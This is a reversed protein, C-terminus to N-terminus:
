EVWLPRGIAVWEGRREGRDVAVLALARARLEAPIEVRWIVWDGYTQPLNVGFVAHATALDVLHVSQGFSCAGVLIPVGVVRVAESLPGVQVRGPLAELTAHVDTIALAQEAAGVALTRSGLASSFRVESLARGPARDSGVVVSNAPAVNHLTGCACARGDALVAYARLGRRRSSLVAYGSFSRPSSLEDVGHVWPQVPGSREALGVIVDDDAVLLIREPVRGSASDVMSGQVRHAWGTGDVLEIAEIDGEVASAETIQFREHVRQGLDEYELRAFVSWRHEQLIPLWADHIRSVYSEIQGVRLSSEDRVGCLVALEARRVEAQRHEYRRVHARQQWLLCVMLAAAVAPGISRVAGPTAAALACVVVCLQHCPTAYRDNQAQALHFGSRSSAAALASAVLFGAIAVLAFRAAAGDRTRLGRGLGPLVLTVCWLLLLFGVIGGVLVRPEGDWLRFPSGVWCATYALMRWPRRLGDEPRMGVGPSAFGISYVAIMAFAVAAVTLVVVRGARRRWAVFVLLPWVLVGNAMSLTSITAAFVAIGWWAKSAAPACARVAAALAGSAAAYVLVFQVQFPEIFNFMQASSFMALTICALWAYAAAPSPRVAAVVVRWLLVAHLGQVIATIALLFLGRGAFALYDVVFLLRPVVLRHENHQQWLMSWSVGARAVGDALVVTVWHDETPLARHLSWVTGLTSAVVWAAAAWAIWLIWQRM